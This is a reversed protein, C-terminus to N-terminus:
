RCRLGAPSKFRNTQDPVVCSNSVSHTYPHRKHKHNWLPTHTNLLSPTLLCLYVGKDRHGEKDNNHQFQAPQVESSWLLAIFHGRLAVPGRVASDGRPKWRVCVFVCVRTYPLFIANTNRKKPTQTKNIKSVNTGVSQSSKPIIIKIRSM